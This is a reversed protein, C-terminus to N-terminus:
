DRHYIDFHRGIEGDAIVGITTNVGVGYSDVPLTGRNEHDFWGIASIDDMGFQVDVHPNKDATVGAFNSSAVGKGPLLLDIFFLL